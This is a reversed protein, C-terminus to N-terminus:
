DEIELAKLRRFDFVNDERSVPTFSYEGRLNVHSWVMVSGRKIAVILKRRENDDTTALLLETLSLYNWLVIANQLVQKCAMAMQQDHVTSVQFAEDNDFFVAKSFRNASEVRNLQKQVQQRLELDDFYTLLFQTKIIRGYEKLAEYLPHHSSYSSLRKFLQSATARRTRVTAVFRLVDEWHDIILQRRINRSPLIRFGRKAYTAPSSFGYLATRNLRALRPAFAIGLLDTVGFLAETYGHTDVSHIQNMPVDNQLLGDIVYAAERDSASFVLTHFLVQRDDIFTYNTVGKDKGFYKFSYNAHLCEVDVNMKRGDSSSHTADPQTRFIDPLSLADVSAIISKNAEHLNEENFYWNTCHKLTDADLGSSIKALKGVGINCGHAMLGAMLLEPPPKSKSRKPSHHKFAETFDCVADVAKLLHLIPVVGQTSLTTSVFSDTAFDTAPTNVWPKGDQRIILYRNKGDIQRENVRCFLKDVLEESEALVHHVDAYDTLNCENLLAERNEKWEKKSILYDYIARYRYSHRLNLRGAKIGKAVHIFLLAKYLKVRFEGNRFVAAYENEDLFDAPASDDVDGSMDKFYRIASIINSDSTEDDFEVVKVIGAVRNKLLDSRSELIEFYEEERAGKLLKPDISNELEQHTPTQSELFDVVLSEIKYYKENPSEDTSKTIAVVAEAFASATIHANKLTDLAKAMMDHRTLKLERLKSNAAHKAATVSKLLIDIAFDQRTFYQHKVFALLHIYVNHRDKFQVLQRHGAKSLWTAYFDAAKDTLSLNTILTEFSLYHEKFKKLIEVSKKIERPKLSHSPRKLESLLSYTRTGSPAKQTVLLSELEEREDTTLSKRLLEVLDSEFQNYADSILNAFKSYSPIVWNRKWCHDVLGALVVEPTEKNEIYRRAVTSLEALDTESPYSWDCIDLILKQHREATDASYQNLDIPSEELLTGVYHIDANRFSASAFFRGAARFYGLQLLFGAKAVASQSRGLVRRVAQNIIFTAAREARTLKPPQKLEKQEKASLINLVTMTGESKISGVITPTPARAQRLRVPSRGASTPPCENTETAHGSLCFSSALADAGISMAIPQLIM